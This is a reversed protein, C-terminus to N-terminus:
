GSSVNRVNTDKIVVSLLERAPTNFTECEAQEGRRLLDQAQGPTAANRFRLAPVSSSLSARFAPGVRWTSDCRAVNQRRTRLGDHIRWIRFGSAVVSLPCRLESTDLVGSAPKQDLPGGRLPKKVIWLPHQERLLIRYRRLGLDTRPRTRSLTCSGRSGQPATVLM